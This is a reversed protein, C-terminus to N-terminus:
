CDYIEQLSTKEKFPASVSYYVLFNSSFNLMALLHAVSEVGLLGDDKEKCYEEGVLFYSVPTVDDKHM